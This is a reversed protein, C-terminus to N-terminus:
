YPFRLRRFVDSSLGLCLHFCVTTVQHVCMVRTNEFVKNQKSFSVTYLFSVQVVPLFTEKVYSPLLIVGSIAVLLASTLMAVNHHSLRLFRTTDCLVVDCFIKCISFPIKPPIEV